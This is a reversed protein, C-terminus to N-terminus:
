ELLLLCPLAKPEALRLLTYGIGALGQFLLPAFVDTGRAASVQFRGQSRARELIRRLLKRAAELSEADGLRRHAEILLEITGMHGCCLDDPGEAGVRPNAVCKQIRGLVGDIEERAESGDELHLAGLRSMAIGAAGHCWSDPFVDEAPAAQVEEVDDLTGIAWWDRWTGLRPRHRAEFDTRIDRWSGREPAYLGRVFALGESSAERLEPRGTVEWLRLL